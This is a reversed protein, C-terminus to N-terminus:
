VSMRAAERISMSKYNVKPARLGGHTMEWRNRNRARINNDKLWLDYFFEKTPGKGICEELVSFFSTFKMKNLHKVLGSTIVYCITPCGDFDVTEWNSEHKPALIKLKAAKLESCVPLYWKNGSRPRQYLVLGAQKLERTNM